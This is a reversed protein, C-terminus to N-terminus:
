SAKLQYKCGGKKGGANKEVTKGDVKIACPPFGYTLGDTGPVGQPTLALLRGVKLEAGELTVKVTKTWPLTVQNEFHNTDAMWGLSPKGKGTVELTVEFSQPAGWKSTKEKPTAPAGNSHQDGKTDEGGGDGGCGALLVATTVLAIGTVTKRM